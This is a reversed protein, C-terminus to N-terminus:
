AFLEDASAIALARDLWRDLTAVDTCALIRHQHDSTIVLGRRRL